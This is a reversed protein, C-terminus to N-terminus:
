YIQVVFNLIKLFKNLEIDSTSKMEKRPPGSIPWTRAGSKM